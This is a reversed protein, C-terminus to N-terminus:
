YRLVGAFIKDTTAKLAADLPCVRTVTSVVKGLFVTCPATCVLWGLLPLGRGALEDFLGRGDLEDALGRM